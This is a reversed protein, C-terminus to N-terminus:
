GGETPGIEECSTIFKGFAIVKLRQGPQFDPRPKEDDWYFLLPVDGGGDLLFDRVRVGDVERSDQGASVFAGETERRLGEQMERLFKLYGSWPALKMAIWFYAACGGLIAAALSLPKIRFIMGAVVLILALGGILFAVRMARRHAAEARTLDTEGYL